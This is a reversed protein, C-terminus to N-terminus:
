NKHFYHKTTEASNASTYVKQQNIWTPADIESKRFFISNQYMTRFIRFQKQILSIQIGSEILLKARLEFFILVNIKFFDYKRFWTDFIL